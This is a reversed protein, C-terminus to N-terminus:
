FFLSLMRYLFNKKLLFIVMPISSMALFGYINKHAIHGTIQTPFFQNSANPIFGLYESLVYISSFTLAWVYIQFFKDSKDLHNRSKIAVAFTLFCAWLIGLSHVTAFKYPSIFSSTLIYIVLCFFLSVSFSNIKPSKGIAYGYDKNPIFLIIPLLILATINKVGHFYEQEIHGIFLILLLIIIALM